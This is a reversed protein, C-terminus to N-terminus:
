GVVANVIIAAIVAAIIGFIWKIAPTLYKAAKAPPQALRERALLERLYDRGHTTIRVEFFEPGDFTTGDIGSLHGSDILERVIQVPVDSASDIRDPLAGSAAWQLVDLTPDTAM